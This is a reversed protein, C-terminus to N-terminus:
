LLEGSGGATPCWTGMTTTSLIPSPCPTLAAKHLDLDM